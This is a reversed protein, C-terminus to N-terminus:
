TNNTANNEEDILPYCRHYLNKLNTTYRDCRLRATIYNMVCGPNPNKSKSLEELDKFLNYFEVKRRTDKGSKWNRLMSKLTKTINDMNIYEATKAYECILAVQTDVDEMKLYDLIKILTESLNIFSDLYTNITRVTYNGEKKVTPEGYKQILYQKTNEIITEYM